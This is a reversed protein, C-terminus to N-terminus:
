EADPSAEDEIEPMDAPPSPEADIIQDLAEAEAASWKRLMRNSEANMAKLAHGPDDPNAEPATKIGYSLVDSRIEALLRGVITVVDSMKVLEKSEIKQTFVARDMKMEGNKSEQYIKYLRQEDAAGREQAIRWREQAIASLRRHTALSMELTVNEAGALRSEDILVTEAEPTTKNSRAKRWAEAAEISDTPMGLAILQSIRGASVKWRKALTSPPVRIDKLPQSNESNDM